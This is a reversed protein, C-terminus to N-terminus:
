EPKEYFRESLSGAAPRTTKECSVLNVGKVPNHFFPKLLDKKKKGLKAEIQAPSALKRVYIDPLKLGLGQLNVVHKDANQEIWARNGIKEALQWGKPPNGAEAQNHGLARVARIWDELRELGDLMHGLEVPDTVKLSNSMDPLAGADPDEFWKQADIPLVSLAVKRLAPCFGENPCFTCNGPVLWKEAWADFKVRNGDNEEFERKAQASLAMRELLEGTWEILDALAFVESRIPGEKHSARPQVITSVIVDVDDLVDQPLTLLACLAYTRLQKNETADVVGRGNKFDIVELLRDARKLTIADCTGGAEFPPGIQWLTFNQEVLLTDFPFLGRVYDVFVHASEALEDDIEIEHEKTKVIEGVFAGPWLKMTDDRLCREAIEHAATGRASHISEKEPPALASLAIAGPCTWNRSTASASWEAHDRSAHNTTM